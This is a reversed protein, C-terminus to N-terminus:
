LSANEEAVKVTIIISERGVVAVKTDKEIANGDSSVAKWDDGDIAVRGFGGKEIRQSVIGVRGILADVNSLRDPAHHHHLYRLAFPRVFFICLLSFLAFVIVQGTFDMGLLTAVVSAAAGVSFCIIFFGGSLLEFILCATAIVAWLLWLNLTFYNIM